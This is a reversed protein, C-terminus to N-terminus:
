NLLEFLFCDIEPVLLSVVLMKLVLEQGQLLLEIADVLLLPSLFVVVLCPELCVESKDVSQPCLDIILFCKQILTFLM